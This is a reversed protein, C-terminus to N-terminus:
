IFTEYPNKRREKGAQSGEEKSAIWGDGWLTREKDCTSDQGAEKRMEETKGKRTEHRTCLSVWKDRSKYICIFVTLRYRYILSFICYADTDQNGQTICM